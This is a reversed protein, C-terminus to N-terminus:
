DIDFRAVVPAHDSPTPSRRRRPWMDVYIEQCLKALIENALIYDIRMGEDRWVAANKYDWWTFQRENPHCHRFLDILGIKLLEELAEREDDMFGITGHLLEPEWVDIDDRAVNLDGVVSIKDKKIDFKDEIYNALYKFFQLKYVHKEGDLDGHPAYVNCIDVGKIKAHIFRKQEDWFPDGFGKSVEEFGYKSCIAVGNYAKQGFVACEYGLEEFDKYPFREDECKLEQMCLIDVPNKETLWRKILELRANVSNVNFTAITM